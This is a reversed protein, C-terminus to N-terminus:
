IIHGSFILFGFMVLNMTVAWSLVGYWKKKKNRKYFKSKKQYIETLALLVGHYLGYLIYCTGLGHWVGMVLMNIIFGVSATTLRTPFRKKKMSAMVFRTFIFDRFWESLTIHWRAWFDKMDKSLFPKNFNDPVKIGLMYGTGVAMLSYGAFDFFMYIGYTYAYAIENLLTPETVLMMVKYGLEALVFKYLLGWIMKELGIGFLELYESRKYTKTFDSEFRRSRDIPGCSFTPFFILFGTFETVSVSEIVGDYIEIIIQVVRFTLYSIGIFQFWGMQSFTNLECLKCLILPLITLFVFLRYIWLKRGKKRLQEYLKVLLLEMLFYVCFYILASPTGELVLVIFLISVAINYWKMPKELLGLILAGVLVLILVLFFYEGSYFSM